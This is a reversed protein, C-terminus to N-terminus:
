LSTKFFTVKHKMWISPGNWPKRAQHVKPELLAASVAAEEGIGSHSLVAKNELMDEGPAM